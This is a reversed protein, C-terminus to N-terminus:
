AAREARDGRLAGIWGNLTELDSASVQTLDPDLPVTVANGGGLVTISGTGRLVGRGVSSAGGVPLGGTLLDKALLAVLGLDAAEAERTADHPWRVELRLSIRGDRVVEEEFLRGKVVGQTLRDLQIRSQRIRQQDDGDVRSEWVRLRSAALEVKKGRPGFLSAVFAPGSDRMFLRAIRLARSRLAGALSTGPLVSRGGSMLHSVDPADAGIGPSRVLLGGTFSVELRVEARRRRDAVPTLALRSGAAAAMAADPGAHAPEGVTPAEYSSRLWDLWGREDSLEFRVARWSTAACAGLGRSRRAGFAIEGSALGGLATALLAVLGEEADATPVLLEFRLDFTTGAPLVELDYKFHDEAIGTEPTIAVGDRIESTRAAPLDALADFVILPSQTADKDEEDPRDALAAGFLEAVQGDEDSRYGGLVDALHGRLAGALTEGTLLPRNDVPDRRLSLDAPGDPQGGFQTASTLELRATVVWRAVVARVGGVPVSALSEPPM